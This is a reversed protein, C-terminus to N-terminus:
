HLHRGSDGPGGLYGLSEGVAHTLHLLAIYPTARLAVNRIPKNWTIRLTRATRLGAVLQPAVVRMWDARTMYPRRIGAIARGNHFFLEATPGIPDCQYHHVQLTEDAVVRFGSRRLAAAYAFELMLEGEPPLREFVWSKWSANAHGPNTRRDVDLPQAQAGYGACYLAWDITHRGTGNEVAGFIMAADPDDAHAQIVRELWGPDPRCHDETVAIVAGDARAYAAQRLEFVSAGPMSLYVVDDTAIIDPPVPLGSGDAVILQGGVSRVQPLASRIAIGMRPWGRM